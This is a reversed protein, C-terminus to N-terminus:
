FATRGELSLDSSPRNNISLMMCFSVVFSDVSSSRITILSTHGYIEREDIIIIIIISHICISRIYTSIAPTSPSNFCAATSAKFVFGLKAYVISSTRSSTFRTKSVPYKEDHRGFASSVLSPTLSVISTVGFGSNLPVTTVPAM